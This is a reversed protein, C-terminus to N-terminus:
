QAHSSCPNSSVQVSSGTGRCVGPSPSAMWPHLVDQVRVVGVAKGSMLRETPAEHAGQERCLSEVDLDEPEAARHTCSFSIFLGPVHWLMNIGLSSSFAYHSPYHM